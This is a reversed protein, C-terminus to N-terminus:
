PYQQNKALPLQGKHSWEGWLILLTGKGIKSRQTETKHGDKIHRISRYM